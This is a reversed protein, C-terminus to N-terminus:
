RFLSIVVDKDIKKARALLPAAVVIDNMSIKNGIKNNNMIQRIIDIPICNWFNISRLLAKLDPGTMMDIFSTNTAANM